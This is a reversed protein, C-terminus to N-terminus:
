LGSLHRGPGGGQGPPWARGGPRAFGRWGTLEKYLATFLGRLKPSGYAEGVDIGAVAVGAELFREHM